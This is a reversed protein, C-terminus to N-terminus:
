ELSLLADSVIAPTLKRLLLAEVHILLANSRHFSVDPPAQNSTSIVIFKGFLEVKACSGAM